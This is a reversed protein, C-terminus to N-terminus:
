IKKGSDPQEQKFDFLAMKTKQRMYFSLVAVVIFIMIITAASNIAINVVSDFFFEEPVMLILKDTEPNLQWLDNSFAEIHFKEFIGTFDILTLLSLFVLVIIALINGFIIASRLDILENKKALWAIALLLAIIIPYLSYKAIKVLSKVDALHVKERNNFFTADLNNKDNFYGLIAKYNEIAANKEISAYVNNKEFEKLYFSDNYIHLNLNLLIIFFPLVISILIIAIFNKNDM